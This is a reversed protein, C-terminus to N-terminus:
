TYTSLAEKTMVDEYSQSIIAILFNLMIVLMIYQNMWWTIWIIFVMMGSSWPSDEMRESWVSYDHIKIDGVSIRWAQIVYKWFGPLEPYKTDDM